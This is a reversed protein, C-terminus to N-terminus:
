RGTQQASNNAPITLLGQWGLRYQAIIRAVIFYVLMFFSAAVGLMRDGAGPLFMAVFLGPALNFILLILLFTLLDSVWHPLPPRPPLPAPALPTFLLGLFCLLLAGVGLWLAVIYSAAPVGLLMAGYILASSVFGLGALVFAAGNWWRTQPTRTTTSIGVLDWGLGYQLINTMVLLSWLLVNVSNGRLQRFHNDADSLTSDIGPLNFLAWLTYFVLIASCIWFAYRVGRRVVIRPARKREAETQFLRNALSIALYAVILFLMLFSGWDWPVYQEMRIGFLMAVHIAGSIVFLLATLTVGIWSIRYKWM